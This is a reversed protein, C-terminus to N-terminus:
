LDDRIELAEELKDLQESFFDENEAWGQFSPAFRELLQEKKGSQWEKDFM